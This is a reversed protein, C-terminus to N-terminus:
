FLRIKRFDRTTELLLLSSLPCSLEDPDALTHINLTSCRPVSQGSLLIFSFSNFFLVTSKYNWLGLSLHINISVSTFMPRHTSLQYIFM